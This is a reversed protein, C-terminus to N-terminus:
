AHPYNTVCCDGTERSCEPVWQNNDAFGQMEAAKEMVKGKREGQHFSSEGKPPQTRQARPPPLKRECVGPLPISPGKREKSSKSSEIRREEKRFVGFEADSLASM